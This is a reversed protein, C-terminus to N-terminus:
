FAKIATFGGDVVLNTATVYSAAGSALFVVAAGIEGDLGIRGLANAARVRDLFGDAQALDMDALDRRLMPTDITGPSLANVRIGYKGVEVALTRAAAIVGAKAAAYVVCGPLSHSAQVSSTFILSGGGRSRMPAIAQRACLLVGKLDVALLRDLDAETMHELEAYKEVGANAHVIDLGGFRSVACEIMRDVDGLVSVDGECCIAQSGADNVMARTEDLGAGDIDNIVVRAGAGALAVASARGL